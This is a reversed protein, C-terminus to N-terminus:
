ENTEYGEKKFAERIYKAIEIFDQYSTNGKITNVYRLCYCINDLSSLEEISQGKLYGVIIPIKHDVTRKRPDNPNVLTIESDVFKVGTYYCYDPIPLKSINKKTLREVKNRFLQYQTDLFDVTNYPIKNRPGFGQGARQGNNIVGYETIM